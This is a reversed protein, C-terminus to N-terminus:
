RSVAVYPAAARRDSGDNPSPEGNTTDFLGNIESLRVPYRLTGGLM